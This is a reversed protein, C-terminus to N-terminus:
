IESMEPMFKKNWMKVVTELPFGDLQESMMATLFKQLRYEEALNPGTFRDAIIM